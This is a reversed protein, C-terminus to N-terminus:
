YLGIQVWILLALTFAANYLCWLVGLISTMMAPQDFVDSFVLLSISSLFNLAAATIGFKNAAKDVYPRIVTMALLMSAELVPLVISQAIPNSQAFATVAGKIITYALLPIVFFYAEARYNTYLFGWKTLCRPDSYLAYAPREHLARSALVHQVVKLTALGLVATMSPWMTIALVIGVASDREILEWLCLVCMQPFGLFVIRYLTGRMSIRWRITSGRTRELKQRKGKLSSSLVLQLLLAALVICVTVYYLFLYGTMFISTREISARYGMREIGRVTQETGGSTTDASRRALM